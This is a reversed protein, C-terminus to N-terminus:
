NRRLHPLLLVDNWLVDSQFHREKRAITLLWARTLLFIMASWDSCRFFYRFVQLDIEASYNNARADVQSCSPIMSPPFKVFAWPWTYVERKKNGDRLAESNLLASADIEEKELFLITETVMIINSRKFLKIPKNLFTPVKWDPCNYNLEIRRESSSKWRRYRRCKSLGNRIQIEM